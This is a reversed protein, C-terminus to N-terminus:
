RRRNQAVINELHFVQLRAHHQLSRHAVHYVEAREYINTDLLITQHMDGLHGVVM